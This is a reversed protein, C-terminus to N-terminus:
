ALSVGFCFFQMDAASPVERVWSNTLFTASVGEALSSSLIAAQM